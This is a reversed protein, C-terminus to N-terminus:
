GSSGYTASVSVGTRYRNFRDKRETRRYGNKGSLRMDLLVLAKMATATPVERTAACADHRGSIRLEVEEMSKMDVSRQAQGISPTPKFGVRVILPLGTTMGGLIGGANNSPPTM